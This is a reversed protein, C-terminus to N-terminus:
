FEVSNPGFAEYADLEEEASALVSEADWGGDDDWVIWVLITEIIGACPFWGKARISRIREIIRILRPVVGWGELNFGPHEEQTLDVVQRLKLLVGEMDGGQECSLADEYLLGMTRNYNEIADM